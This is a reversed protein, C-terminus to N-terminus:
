SGPSERRSSLLGNETAVWVSGDSHELLARPRVDPLGDRRTFVRLVSPRAGAAQDFLWIGDGLAAWLRGQRDIMLAYVITPASYQEITGNRTRRFLGSDATGIWISDDRAIALAYVSGNMSNTAPLGIDIPEFEGSRNLKFIGRRTGCWLSGDAGEALALVHRAPPPGPIPHHVFPSLGKRTRDPEFRALGDQTGAWYTGRRTELFGTVHRNPLGDRYSTFTYGDFAILGDRSCLWLFGRSDRAVCNVTSSPLGDSTTYARIPLREASLAAAFLFGAGVVGTFRPRWGALV